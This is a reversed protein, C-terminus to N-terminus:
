QGYGDPLVLATLVAHTFATGDLYVPAKTHGPATVAANPGCGSHIATARLDGTSTHFVVLDTARLMPPPCSHMGEPARVALQDFARALRQAASGRLTKHVTPAGKGGPGRPDLPARVVTVDVSTFSRPVYSWAPRNPVWVTWADIKIAVGGGHPQVYYDLEIGYNGHGPTAFSLEESNPGSGSDGAAMGKPPHAQLYAITGTVGGPATWWASRRVENPSTSTTLGPGAGLSKSRRAGPPLPAGALASEIQRIAAAKPDHPSSPSSAGTTRHAGASSACAAVVVAALSPAAGRPRMRSMTM